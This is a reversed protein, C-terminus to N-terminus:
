DFSALVRYSATISSKESPLLELLGLGILHKIASRVAKSSFGLAEGLVTGSIQITAEGEGITRRYLYIYILSASPSNIRLILSDFIYSDFQIKKRIKRLECVGHIARRHSQFNATVRGEQDSLEERANGDGRSKEVPVSEDASMKVGSFNDASRKVSTSKDVSMEAAASEERSKKVPTSKDASMKVAASEEKSKESSSLGSGGDALYANGEGILDFGGPNPRDQGLQEVLDLISRKKKKSSAM